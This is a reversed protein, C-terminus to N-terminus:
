RAQRARLSGPLRKTERAKGTQQLRRNRLLRCGVSGQSKRLELQQSLCISGGTSPAAEEVRRKRAALAGPPCGRDFRFQLSRCTALRTPREM